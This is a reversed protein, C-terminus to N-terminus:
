IVNWRNNRGQFNIAEACRYDDARLSISIMSQDEFTILFADHARVSVSAVIKAIQGCLLNRFQDDGSRVSTLGASVTVPTYVSVIPPPNFQLQIYDMVFTVGSLQEGVLQEYLELEVPSPTM